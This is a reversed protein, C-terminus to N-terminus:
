LSRAREIISRADRIVTHGLRDAVARTTANGRRVIEALLTIADLFVACRPCSREPHHAELEPAEYLQHCKPCTTIV